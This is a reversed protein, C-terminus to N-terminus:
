TFISMPVNSFIGVHGGPAMKLIVAMENLNERKNKKFKDTQDLTGSESLRFIANNGM